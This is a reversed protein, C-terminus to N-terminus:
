HSSNLRTSKRDRARSAREDYDTLTYIPTDIQNEDQIAELAARLRRNAESDRTLAREVERHVAPDILLAGTRAISLLLAGLTAELERKQREYVLSGVLIVALVTGAVFLAAVRLSLRQWPRIGVTASPGPTEPTVM